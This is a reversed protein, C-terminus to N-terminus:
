ANKNINNKLILFINKLKNRWYQYIKMNNCDM